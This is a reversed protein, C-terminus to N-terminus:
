AHICTQCCIVLIVVATYHSRGRVFLEFDQTMNPMRANGNSAVCTYTDTDDDRTYNFTLNRYVEYVDNSTAPPTVAPDSLSIRSDFDENLLDGNRYWNIYPAPIGTARCEFTVEEFQNVTYNETFIIEPVVTSSFHCM